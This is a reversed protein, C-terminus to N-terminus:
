DDDNYTSIIVRHVDPDKPDELIRQPTHTNEKTDRRLLPGSPVPSTNPTAPNSSVPPNPSSPSSPASIFSQMKYLVIGLIVIITGFIFPFSIEHSSNLIVITLLIIVPLATIHCFLRAINDMHKMIYSIMLGSFATLVIILVVDWSYGVFFGEAKARELDFIFFIVFGIIISYFTMHVNQINLSDKEDKKVRWETYVGAFSSLFCGFVVLLIGSFTVSFVSECDYISIAAGLTIFSLAFWQDYAFRRQLIAVLLVTTFLLKLQNLVEMVAPSMFLYTFVRLNNNMCYILSPVLFNASKSKTLFIPTETQKLIFREVGYAMFSLVFKLLEAMITITTILYPYTTGGRKSYGTTIALTSMLLVLFATLSLNKLGHKFKAIDM